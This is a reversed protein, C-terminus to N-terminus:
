WRVELTLRIAHEPAAAGFAPETRTARLGLEFSSPGGRVLGLRWGLGVERGTDSLGLGLEPTATFRGGFAPLGYDLKVGLRRRKM